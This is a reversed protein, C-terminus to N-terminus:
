GPQAMRVALLLATALPDDALYGVSDLGARVSGIDHLEAM